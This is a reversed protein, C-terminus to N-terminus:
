RDRPRWPREVGRADSASAAAERNDADTRAVCVPARRFRIGREGPRAIDHAVPKIEVQEALREQALPAMGGTESGLGFANTEGEIERGLAAIDRQDGRSVGADIPKRAEGELKDVSRLARVPPSHPEAYYRPKGCQLGRCRSCARRQAM